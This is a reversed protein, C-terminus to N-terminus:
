VPMTALAANLRDLEAEGAPSGVRMFGPRDDFARTWIRARALHVHLAEAYSEFTTSGLVTDGELLFSMLWIFSETGPAACVALGNPVRYPERAAALLAELEVKAPLGTLNAPNRVQNDLAYSYPNIGTSLDIWGDLTRGYRAVALGLDGGHKM